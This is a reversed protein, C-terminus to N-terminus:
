QISCLIKHVCHRLLGDKCDYNRQSSVAQENCNFCYINNLSVYIIMLCLKLLLEIEKQLILLSRSGNWTYLSM